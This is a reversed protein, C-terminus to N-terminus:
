PQRSRWLHREPSTLFRFPQSLSTPRLDRLFRHDLHRLTALQLRNHRVTTDGFCISALSTEFSSLFDSGGM